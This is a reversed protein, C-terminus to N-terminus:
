SDEDLSEDDFDDFEYDDLEDELEDLEDPPDEALREGPQTHSAHRPDPRGRASPRVDPETMDPEDGTTAPVRHKQDVM